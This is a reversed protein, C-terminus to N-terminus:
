MEEAAKRFGYFSRYGRKEYYGQSSSTALMEVRTSPYCEHAVQMLHEGIGRGRHSEKILLECIYLTVNGDTLGRLYGVIEDGDMAILAPESNLWSCLTEQGHEVLGSWGEKENLLQVADFDNEHFSRIKITEM